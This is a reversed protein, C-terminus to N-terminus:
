EGKRQFKLMNGEDKFGNSLVQIEVIEETTRDTEHLTSIIASVFNYFHGEYMHMTGDDYVIGFQYRKLKAKM